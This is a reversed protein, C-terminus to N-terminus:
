FIRFKQLKMNLLSFSEGLSMKIVESNNQECLKSRRKDGNCQKLLIFFRTHEGINWHLLIFDAFM